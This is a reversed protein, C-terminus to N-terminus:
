SSSKLAAVVADTFESTSAAAAGEAAVDRTRIDTEAFVSMVAKEIAEAREELKLYRLMLVGGMITATPNAIQRGALSRASHRTGQEFIAGSIGINAGPFLGPGGVLGTAINTVINGYLNPLIMVDFQQPNSAMQMCTNDVIMSEFEIFPYKSAVNTCCELFLGDASKMINAKHVVTVKKRNNALAYQFAYEAIRTSKEETIIKLSEVVGPVASHELGSYEGETNERIMVVDIDKHRTQIGPINYAHVVNAFLDFSKRLQINISTEKTGLPTFYPGKVAVRTEAFLDIVEQTLGGDVRPDVKPSVFSVPVNAAKFIEALSETVERGITDTDGKLLLVPTDKSAPSSLPFFNRAPDHAMTTPVSLTTAHRHHSLQTAVRRLHSLRSQM